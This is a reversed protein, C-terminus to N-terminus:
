NGFLKVGKPNTPLYGAPLETMPMPMPSPAFSVPNMVGTSQSLNAGLGSFANAARSKAVNTAYDLSKMYKGASMTGAAKGAGAGAGMSFASLGTQMLGTLGANMTQRGSALEAGMGAIDQQERAEQMGQIRAEDQARMREIQAQQQDLNAGIQQQVQQQQQEAAGLGGVLGRVGGSQLADVTTAFRRQAEQTQMEAGLTSVRLGETVNKLEQRQYNELAKKAKRARSAGSIMQGISGAASVGLGIAAILPLPM